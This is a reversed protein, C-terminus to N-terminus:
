HARLKDAIVDLTCDIRARAVTGDTGILFYRPVGYADFLTALSGDTDDRLDIRSRHHERSALKDYAGMISVVVVNRRKALAELAPEDRTCPPCAPSWFR